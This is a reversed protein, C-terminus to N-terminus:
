NGGTFTLYYFGSDPDVAGFAQFGGSAQKVILAILFGAGLIGALDDDVYYVLSLIGFAVATRTIMGPFPVQGVKLAQWANIGVAICFEAGFMKGAPFQSLSPGSPLSSGIRRAASRANGASEPVAPKAAVPKPAAPAPAPVAKPVPSGTGKTTSVKVPASM